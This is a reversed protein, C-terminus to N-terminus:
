FGLDLQPPVPPVAPPAEARLPWRGLLEYQVPSLDLRSRILVFEGVHWDIATIPTPPLGQTAHRAITLHPTLSQRPLALGARQMAERLRKYLAELEPPADRSGLWWPTDRGRFSGAQDLRLDFPPAVVMAAAALAAAEQVPTVEDGLFLLTLHYREAASLRGGPQLRVMLQRAAERSAARVQEGPWLAFFLRNLQLMRQPM